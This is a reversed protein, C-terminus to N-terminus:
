LIDQDGNDHRCFSTNTENDPHGSWMVSETHCHQEYVQEQSERDYAYAQFFSERKVLHAPRFQSYMNPLIM